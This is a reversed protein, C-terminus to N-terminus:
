PFYLTVLGPYRLCLVTEIFHSFYMLGKCYVFGYVSGFWGSFGCFHVGLVFSWGRLFVFICRVNTRRRGSEGAM